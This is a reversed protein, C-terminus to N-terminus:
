FKEVLLNQRPQLLFLNATFVILEKQMEFVFPIILLDGKLLEACKGVLFFELIGFAVLPLAPCLAAEAALLDKVFVESYLQFVALVTHM